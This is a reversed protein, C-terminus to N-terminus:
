CHKFDKKRRTPAAVREAIRLKASRARPNSAVEDEGPGVPKKTILAVAPERGAWREGGEPLSEWKGAHAAMASKVVRDELSHFTIVALRGGERLLGIAEEVGTEAARLEDNVAIRLAQFVRTAPHRAAGKRGGVTKEVFDALQRTTRFPARAQADTIARALKGANPEEGYESLIRALERWDGGIRALLDAATEGRSNDMRMDLPGDHLFSFGRDAEDLQFSSVGLDLLVGDFPGAGDEEAVRRMEAFNAHRAHFRGAYRALRAEARAVAAPDRDVGWLEGDPACAELISEAHGGGGLTGDFYRGGPRVALGEMVENKLVSIHM